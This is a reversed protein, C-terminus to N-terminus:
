VGTLVEFTVAIDPYLRLAALRGSPGRLDAPHLAKSEM